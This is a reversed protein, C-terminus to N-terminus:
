RFSGCTSDDAAWGARGYMANRTRVGEDRNCRAHEPGRYATRYRVTRGSIAAQDHGTDAVM